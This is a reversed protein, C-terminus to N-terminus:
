RICLPVRRLSRWKRLFFWDILVGGAAFLAGAEREGGGLVGVCRQAQQAATQKTPM